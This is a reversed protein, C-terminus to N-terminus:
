RGTWCMSAAGTPTRFSTPPARWPMPSRRPATSPTATRAAPSPSAPRPPWGTTPASGPALGAAAREIHLLAIGTPGYALHQRNADDTAATPAQDPHALRDAIAAAVAAATHTM